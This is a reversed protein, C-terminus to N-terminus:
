SHKVVRKGHRAIRERHEEYLRPLYKEYLAHNFEPAHAARFERLRALDLEAVVIEERNDSNARALIASRGGCMELPAVIMSPGRFNLGFLDTVCYAQCGYAYSEQVRAIVGRLSMHFENATPEASFDLLLEAGRLTAARATEWFTHDMCVPMAVTAFPLSFIHLENDCTLWEEELHTPHLKHQTGILAGGPGYLYATNYLRRSADITITSGPMLYVGFRAALERSTTEFIRRATPAIMQFVTKLTLGSGPALEEIAGELSIGKQAIARVSPLLGLIPLWAYEPFVIFQAGREVAQKVLGYYREAFAAGDDVLDLHMQVVALKLRDRDPPAPRPYSRRELTRRIGAPRSRYDLLANAFRATLRDKIPM